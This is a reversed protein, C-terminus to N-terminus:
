DGWKSENCLVAFHLLSGQLMGKKVHEQRDSCMFSSVVGGIALDAERMSPSAAAQESAFARDSKGQM